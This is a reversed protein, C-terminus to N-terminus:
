IFLYNKTLTENLVQEDVEQAASEKAVPGTRKFVSNHDDLINEKLYKINKWYTPGHHYKFKLTRHEM